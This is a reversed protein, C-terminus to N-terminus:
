LRHECGEVVDMPVQGCQLSHERVRALRDLMQNYENSQM